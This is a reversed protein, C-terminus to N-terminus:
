SVKEERGVDVREVKKFEEALFLENLANQFADRSDSKSFVADPQHGLSRVEALAESRSLETM